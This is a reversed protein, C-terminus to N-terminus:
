QLVQGYPNSRFGFWGSVRRFLKASFSVKPFPPEGENFRRLVEHRVSDARSWRLLYSLTDHASDRESAVLKPLAALQAKNTRLYMFAYSEIFPALRVLALQTFPHLEDCIVLSAWMGRACQFAEEAAPRAQLDAFPGVGSRLAENIEKHLSVVEENRGQVAGSKLREALEEPSDHYDPRTKLYPLIARQASISKLSPWVWDDYRRNPNIM